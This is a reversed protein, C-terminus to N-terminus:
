FFADQRSTEERRARRLAVLPDAFPIAPRVGRFLEALTIIQLRPWGREWEDTFRGVAAAERLMPGTPLAATVFVGIPAKEREMASHLDRIMQVGVHHGGKVSILAKESRKGDPKFYIVGDIGGDAGKKKGDLPVGEIMAVAWWQFQYKDREALDLASALDKPTGEVTFQVGPFADKMRREILSIALHTIDIGIWRRGLKEAAHIATGCGCFPDLVLDGPNSSAAIIRELLALPKQTPYGLREKSNPNLISIDWWDALPSRALDDTSAAKRVGNEFVARQRKGGWRRMTGPSPDGYLTHFTQSGEKRSYFLIVDHNRVFQGQAVSWKRYCWIIENRFNAKDFVGDLLLKLYHSATPDCHLYLSGTPKLVRHLEILRIAMMSLYAMMDNEGLFSRMARLLDFARPHGSRMVQEFADEAANNWHWSDEFAEIQSDAALGAPSKFLINYNANSNFPPDLYVLDVSEDAVHTRLADLNDAYHLRNTM